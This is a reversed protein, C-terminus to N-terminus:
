GLVHHAAVGATDGSLVAATRAGSAQHYVGSFNCCSQVEEVALALAEDGEALAFASGVKTAAYDSGEAEAQPGALRAGV